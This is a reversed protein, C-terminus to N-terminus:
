CRINMDMDGVKGSIAHTATHIMLRAVGLWACNPRHWAISSKLSDSAFLVEKLLASEAKEVDQGFLLSTMPRGVMCSIMQRKSISDSAM